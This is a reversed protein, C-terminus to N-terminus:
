MSPHVSQQGCMTSISAPLWSMCWCRTMPMAPTEVIEIQFSQMPEGFREQRITWAYMRQPVHGIPPPTGIPFLEAAEVYTTPSLTMRETHKLVM